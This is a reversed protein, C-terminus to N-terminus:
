RTSGSPVTENTSAVDLKPDGQLHAPGLENGAESEAVTPLEIRMLTGGDPPVSALITGGHAAVVQAVIALGLGSGPLSRATQARYFRDFIRPLDAPAIGPGHDRVDLIWHDTRRLSVKIRGGPPSWKAANDLVNLVARELLAPQARVSGADLDVDFEVSLARRRAREVAHEVITDLRVETPEPQQEDQRALEVIDGILTTLEELQARVDGLLEARDAPPLDQVRLLVEINTRLSTLPTRLEHGADSVLQAQQQRSSRLAALMANFAQALRGLEDESTDDITADLDQTAAVHEAAGTLREVPRITARAVLYGLAIAAAVGGLAVLLLVVRLESLTNQIDTIPHAVQIALPSGQNDQLYGGVTIVRYSTHGVTRTRTVTVQNGTDSAVQKDGATVPLAAGTTPYVVGSPSILQLVDGNGIAGLLASAGRPDFFHGARASANVIGIDGQLQHDVQNYLQNGVLLYSVLAAVAVTIGVATAALMSVRTRFTARRLWSRM